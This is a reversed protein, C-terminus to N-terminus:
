VVGNRAIHDRAPLGACANTLLRAFCQHQWGWATAGPRDMCQRPRRLEATCRALQDWRRPEAELLDLCEGCDVDGRYITTDGGQECLSGPVMGGDPAHVFRPM